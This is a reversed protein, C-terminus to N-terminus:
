LKSHRINNSRDYQSILPVGFTKGRLNPFSTASVRSSSRIEMEAEIGKITLDIDNTNIVRLKIQFVAEFGTFEQVEIHALSVRPPELQKGVGACGVLSLTLPARM